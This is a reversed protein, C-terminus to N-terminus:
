SVAVLAGTASHSRPRSEMADHFSRGLRAATLPAAICGARRPKKDRSGAPGVQRDTGECVAPGGSLSVALLFAGTV